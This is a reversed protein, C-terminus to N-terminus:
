KLNRIQDNIYVSSCILGFLTILWFPGSIFGEMLTMPTIISIFLVFLTPVFIGLVFISLLVVLAFLVKKLLTKM